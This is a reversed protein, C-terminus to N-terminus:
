ESCVYILSCSGMCIKQGYDFTFLLKNNGVVGQVCGTVEKRITISIGERIIDEEGGEWGCGCVDHWLEMM